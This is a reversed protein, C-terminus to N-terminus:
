KTPKVVGRPEKTLKFEDDVGGNPQCSRAFIRLCDDVSQQRSDALAKLREYETGEFEIVVKVKM